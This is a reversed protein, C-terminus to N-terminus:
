CPALTAPQQSLFVSQPGVAVLDKSVGVCPQGACCGTLLYCCGGAAAECRGSRRGCPQARGVWCRWRATSWVGSCMQPLELPQGVVDQIPRSLGCTFQFIIHCEGRHTGGCCAACPRGGEGCGAACGAHLVHSAVTHRCVASNSCCHQLWCFQAQCRKWLNLSNSCVMRITDLAYQLVSRGAIYVGHVATPAKRGVALALRGVLTAAAQLLFCLSPHHCWIHHVEDSRPMTHVFCNCDPIKFPSSPIGDSMTAFNAFRAQMVPHAKSWFRRHAAALAACLQSCEPHVSHQQGLVAAAEARPHVAQLPCTLQRSVVPLLPMCIGHPQPATSVRRRDGAASPPWGSVHQHHGQVTAASSSASCSSDCLSGAAALALMAAATCLLIRLCRSTRTALQGAKHHKICSTVDPPKAAAPEKTQPQPVAPQPQTEPQPQLEQSDMQRTPISPQATPQDAQNHIDQEQLILTPNSQVIQPRARPADPTPPQLPDPAATDLSGAPASITDDLADGDPCPHAPSATEPATIDHPRGVECQPPAVAAAPCTDKTFDEAAAASGNFTHLQLADTSHWGSSDASLAHQGDSLSSRPAQTGPSPRPSHLIAWTARDDATRVPAVTAIPDAFHVAPTCAWKPSDGSSGAGDSLEALVNSISKAGRLRRWMPSSAGRSSVPSGSFSVSSAGVGQAVQKLDDSSGQQPSSCSHITGPWSSSSRQPAAALAVARRPSGKPSGPQSRKDSTDHKHAHMLEKLQKKWGM